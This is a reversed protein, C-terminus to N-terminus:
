LTYKLWVNPERYTGLNEELNVELPALAGSIVERGSQELSFCTWDRWKALSARVLASNHCINTMVGGSEIHARLWPDYIRQDPTQRTCYAEMTERPFQAKAGPRVPAIMTRFGQAIAEHMAKQLLLKLLGHGRFKLDVSAEVLSVCNKVSTQAANQISFRWGLDPLEGQTLDVELHVAQIFAILLQSSTERIGYANFRKAFEVASIKFNLIPDPFDSEELLFRPWAQQALRYVEPSGLQISSDWTFGNPLSLNTM